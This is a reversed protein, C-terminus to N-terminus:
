RDTPPSTASRTWFSRAATPRKSAASAFSRPEPILGRKPASSSPRWFSTRSDARTSRFSPSTSCTSFAQVEEVEEPLHGSWKMAADSRAVKVALSVVEHMKPSAYVLGCIDYTEALEQRARAGQARLRTNEQSLERMRVLHKVTTVLKEDDWPKAIYDSAGEKILQVAAELSTFATMILVPFDPDLKKIACSVRGRRATPPM